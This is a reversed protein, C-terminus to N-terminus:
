CHSPHQTQAHSKLAVAATRLAQALADEGDLFAESARSLLATLLTTDDEIAASPPMLAFSSAPPPKIEAAKVQIASLDISHEAAPGFFKILRHCQEVRKSVEHPAENAALLFVQQYAEAMAAENAPSSATGGSIEEVAARVCPQTRLIEEMTDKGALAASIMQMAAQVLLQHERPVQNLAYVDNKCAALFTAPDMSPDADRLRRKGSRLETRLQEATSDINAANGALPKNEM